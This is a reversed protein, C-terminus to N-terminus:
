MLMLKDMVLNMVVDALPGFENKVIPYIEEFRAIANVTREEVDPALAAPTTTNPAVYLNNKNMFEYVKAADVEEYQPQVPQQVEEEPKENKQQSVYGGIGYNSGFIRGIGDTM